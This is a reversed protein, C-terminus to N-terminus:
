SITKNFSSAKESPTVFKEKAPFFRENDAKRERLKYKAGRLKRRAFLRKEKRGLGTGRRM